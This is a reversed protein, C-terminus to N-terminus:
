IGDRLFAEWHGDYHHEIVRVLAEFSLKNADVEFCDAVWDRAATMVEPTFAEEGIEFMVDPVSRRM